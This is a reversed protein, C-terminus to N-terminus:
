NKRSDTNWHKKEYFYKLKDCFYYINAVVFKNEHGLKQFLKNCIWKMKAQEEYARKITVNIRRWNKKNLCLEKLISIINSETFQPKNM